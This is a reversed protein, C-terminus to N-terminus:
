QGNPSIMEIFTSIDFYHFGEPHDESIFLLQFTGFAADLAARSAALKM